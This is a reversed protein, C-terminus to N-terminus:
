LLPALHSEFYAPFNLVFFTEESRLLTYLPRLAGAFCMYVSRLPRVCGGPCACIGGLTILGMYAARFELALYCDLLLITCPVSVLDLCSFDYIFM